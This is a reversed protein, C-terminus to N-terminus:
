VWPDFQFEPAPTLERVELARKELVSDPFAPKDVIGIGDLELKQRVLVGDIIKSQRPYFEASLGRLIGAKYKKYADRGDTDDGLTIEAKLRGDEEILKVGQPSRAVARDRQHQINAIIDLSSLRGMVAGKEVREEITGGGFVPMKAKDGYRFVTGVLVPLEGEVEERLELDEIMTSYVIGEKM